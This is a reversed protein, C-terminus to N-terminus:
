KYERCEAGNCGCVYGIEKLIEIEDIFNARSAMESKEEASIGERRAWSEFYSFDVKGAPTVGCCYKILYRISRPYAADITIRYLRERQERNKMRSYVPMKNDPEAFEKRLKVYRKISQNNCDFERSYIEGHIVNSIEFLTVFQSIADVKPHKVLFLLMDKSTKWKERLDWLWGSLKRSRDVYEPIKALEHASGLMKGSYFGKELSYAMALSPFDRYYHNVEMKRDAFPQTAM